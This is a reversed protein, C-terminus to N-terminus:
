NQLRHRRQYSKRLADPEVRKDIDAAHNSATLLTAVDDFFYRSRSRYYNDIFTKILKEPDIRSPERIASRLSEAEQQLFRAYLRLTTPLGIFRDLEMGGTQQSATIRQSLTAERHSTPQSSYLKNIPELVTANGRLDRALGSLRRIESNCREIWDRRKANLKVRFFLAMWITYLIRLLEKKPVGGSVLRNFASRADAYNLIAYLAQSRIQACSVAPPNLSKSM